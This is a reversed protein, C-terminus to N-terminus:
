GEETFARVDDGLQAQLTLFKVLPRAIAAYTIKHYGSGGVLLGAWRPYEADVVFSGSHGEQGFRKGWPPWVFADMILQVHASVHVHPFEHIRGSYNVWGSTTVTYGTRTGGPRRVLKTVGKLWPDEDEAAVERPYSPHQAHSITSYLLAVDPEFTHPVLLAKYHVLQAPYNSACHSCTVFFRRDSDVLVGGIQGETFEELHRFRTVCIGIGFWDAIPALREKLLLFLGSEIEVMFPSLGFRSLYKGRLGTIRVLKISSVKQTAGADALIWAVADIARGLLLRNVHETQWRLAEKHAIASSRSLEERPDRIIGIPPVERLAFIPLAEQDEFHANQRLFERRAAAVREGRPYKQPPVIM